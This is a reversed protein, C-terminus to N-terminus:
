EKVIKGTWVKSNNNVKLSYVGTTLSTLNLNIIGKDATTTTTYVVQGASNYVEITVAHNDAWNAQISVVGNTPNPYMVLPLAKLNSEVGTIINSETSTCGEANTIRLFYNGDPLGALVLTSKTEGALAENNEGVKRFWQYASAQTTTFLTDGNRLIAPAEPKALVVVEITDSNQEACPSTITVFIPYVGPIQKDFIISPSAEGGEGVKWLYKYTNDSPLAILQVSKGEGACYRLSGVVQITPNTPFADTKVEISSPISCGNADTITVTYFGKALGSITGDTSGTSWKFSYPQTGGTVNAIISGDNGTTCGANKVVYDATLAAPETIAIPGGTFTCGRSDTITGTYNGAALGILDQSTSGNSWSYRYPPTGGVIEIDIKGDNKGNCSVNATVLSAVSIVEPETIEFKRVRFCGEADTVTVTYVGKALSDISTSTEGTSWLFAFPPVGTGTVTVTVRGDTRGNCSISEVLSGSLDILNPQGVYFTEIKKCGKFDTVTVTYDGSAINSLDKTMAGNSWLYSYPESGEFATLVIAGDSGGCTTVSKAQAELRTGRPNEINIETSVLVCGNADTITGQYIGAGIAVLDETTSGNSWKFMYPAKGGTVTINISADKADRCILQKVETGSIMPGEPTGVTVNAFKICGKTDVVKLVYKGPELNKLDRSTSIVKEDKTWEYEYRTQSEVPELMTISGDKTDCRSANVTSVNINWSNPPESVTGTKVVACGNADTVTVSFAGAALDNASASNLESNHSWSYVFPSAGGLIQLAVQGDKGGKCTVNKIVSVSATMNPANFVLNQTRTCSNADVMTVTASKGSAFTADTIIIMEDSTSRNITNGGNVAITYSYPKMGGDAKIVIRQEGECNSPAAIPSFETVNVLFTQTCGGNVTVLLSYIGPSSFSRVASTLGDNWRYTFVTNSPPTKGNLTIQPTYTTGNCTVAAEPNSLDYEYINVLEEKYVCYQIKEKTIPDIEFDTVIVTYLGKSLGTIPNKIDDETTLTRVIAGDLLVQVDFKKRGGSITLDFSGSNANKCSHKVNSANTLIIVPQTLELTKSVAVCKNADVVTIVYKGPALNEIKEDTSLSKFIQGDKTVQYTYPSKGGNGKYSIVGDNSNFCTIKSSTEALSFVLQEPAIITFKGSNFDSVCRTETNMVQVVYDGAALNVAIGTQGLQEIPSYVGDTGLKFWSYTFPGVGADVKAAGDNRDSCTPMTPLISAIVPLPPNAVFVNATASCGAADKVWVEYTAGGKVKNFDFKNFLNSMTITDTGNIVHAMYPSVGGSFDISIQGNAEGCRTAAVSKTILEKSFRTYSHNATVNCGKSDTVVVSYDATDDGVTISSSTAGTNWLFTNGSNGGATVVNLTNCGDREIKATLLEPEGVTVNIQKQCGNDDTVTVQYIGPGLNEVTSANETSHSWKFSYPIRGGGVTLKISGDRGKILGNFCSVNTVEEIISIPNLPSPIEMSDDIVTYYTCGNKDTVFVDIKERVYNGENSKVTFNLNELRNNPTDFVEGTSQKRWRYMYPSLGGIPTVEVSGDGTGFCTEEKVKQQIGLVGGAPGKVILERTFRCGNADIITIRFTGIPVNTIRRKVGSRGDVVVNEIFNKDLEMLPPQPSFQVEFKSPDGSGGSFAVDIIAKDDERCSLETKGFFSTQMSMGQPETLTITDSATCGKSDVVHVIYQGAPLNGYTDKTRDIEYKWLEERPVGTPLSWYYKYPPTGTLMTDLPYNTNDVMLIGSYDQRGDFPNNNQRSCQIPQKVRIKAKLATKPQGVVLTEVETVCKNVDRIFLLYTGVRLDCYTVKDFIFECKRGQILNDSFNVDPTLVGHAFDLLAVEYVPKQFKEDTPMRSGGNIKIVIQGDNANGSLNSTPFKCSVDTITKSSTIPNPQLLTVSQVTFCNDDRLDGTERKEYAVIDLKGAPLKDILTVDSTPVVRRGNSLVYEAVRRGGATLTIQGDAAGHCSIHFVGSLGNYKEDITVSVDKISNRENVEFSYVTSCHSLSNDRVTVEYMGSRLNMAKNGVSPISVKENGVILRFEFSYNGSGGMVTVTATADNTKNCTEDVVNVGSVRLEDVNVLKVVTCGNADIVSYSYSGRVLNNITTAYPRNSLNIIDTKGNEDVWKVTYPPLGGAVALDVMGKVMDTCNFKVMETVKIATPELVTFPRVVACAPDFESRVRLWYTGKPLTYYNQLNFEEANNIMVFTAPTAGVNTMVPEPTAVTRPDIRFIEAINTFGNTSGTLKIRVSGDKSANCTENVTEFASFDIQAPAKIEFTYTNECGKRDRAVIFYKGISLDKFSVEQNETVNTVERTLTNTTNSLKLTYPERVMDPNGENEAAVGDPAFIFEGLMKSNTCPVAHVGDLTVVGKLNFIDRGQKVEFVYNPSCVNNVDRIVLTWIGPCLSSVEGRTTEKPQDNQYYWFYTFPATGSFLVLEENPFQKKDLLTISGDCATPCTANTVLEKSRDYRIDANRRDCREDGPGQAWGINTAGLFSLCCILTLISRMQFLKFKRILTKNKEPMQRYFPKRDIFAYYPAFYIFKNCEKFSYM